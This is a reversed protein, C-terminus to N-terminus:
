TASSAPNALCGNSEGARQGRGPHHHRQGGKDLLEKVAGVTVDPQNLKEIVQNYNIDAM